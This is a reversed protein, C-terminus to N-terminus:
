LIKKYLVGQIICFNDLRPQGTSGTTDYSFGTTITPTESIIWSCLINVLIWIRLQQFKLLFGSTIFLLYYFNIKINGLGAGQAEDYIYKLVPNSGVM